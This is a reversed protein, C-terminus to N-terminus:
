GFDGIKAVCTASLLVNRCAIDRHVYKSQQLYQFGTVVDDALKIFHELYSIDNSVFCSNSSNLKMVWFWPM